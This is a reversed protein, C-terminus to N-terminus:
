IEAVSVIHVTSGCAACALTLTGLHKSYTATMGKRPHCRSRLHLAAGKTLTCQDCDCGIGALVNLELRTLPQSM